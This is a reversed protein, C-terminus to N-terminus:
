GMMGMDATEAESPASEDSMPEERDEKDDEGYVCKITVEGDYVDLVEIMERDGPKVDPSKFFSTPVIGVKEDPTAKDEDMTDDPSSSPEEDYYSDNPM